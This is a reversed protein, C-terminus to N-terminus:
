ANHITDEPVRDQKKSPNKFKASLNTSSATTELGNSSGLSVNMSKSAEYSGAVPANVGNGVPKKTNYM